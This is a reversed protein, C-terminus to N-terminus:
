PEYGCKPCKPQYVAAFQAESAGRTLFTHWVVAAGCRPCWVALCQGVLGIVSLAAGAASVVHALPGKLALWGVFVAAGGVVTVGYAVRLRLNQGTREAFSRPRPAPLPLPPEGSERRRREEKALELLSPLPTPLGSGPAQPPTASVSEGEWGAVKAGLIAAVVAGAAAMLLVSSRESLAMFANVVAVFLGFLGAQLASLRAGLRQAVAASIFAAVPWM